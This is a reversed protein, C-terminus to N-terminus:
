LLMISGWYLPHVAGINFKPASVDTVLPDILNQKMYSFVLVKIIIYKYGIDLSDM